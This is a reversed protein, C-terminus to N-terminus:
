FDALRLEAVCKEAIHVLDAKDGHTPGDLWAELRVLGKRIMAEM